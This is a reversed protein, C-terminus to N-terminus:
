ARRPSATSADATSTSWARTRLRAVEGRRRGRHRGAGRGRCRAAAAPDGGPWAVRAACGRGALGSRGREFLMGDRGAFRLLDVDADLRRTRALLATMPQGRPSSSSPSAGPSCAGTSTSSGPLPSWGVCTTRRRAPLRGLPAPLSLRLRRVAPRRHGAGGQRLLGPPGLAPPPQAADGGRAPRHARRAAARPGARRLVPPAGVLNRLAFGCTVGDVSGARVPLRLADGQVLPARPAPRPWCASRCTSGSPCWGPPQWSAACTAPAAPWTSSAHIGAAPGLSGVARRRWGVDLRFTMIRNVLDYRPAIADFMDRVARVKEDGQPLDSSATTM